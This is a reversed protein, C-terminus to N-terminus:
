SNDLPITAIIRPTAPKSMDLVSLTDHGPERLVPKGQADWGPKQDNGIIMLQAHAMGAALGLVLLAAALGRAFGQMGGEVDKTTAVALAAAPASGMLGGRCAPRSVPCVRM